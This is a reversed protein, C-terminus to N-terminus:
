DHVPDDSCWMADGVSSELEAGLYEGDQADDCGEQENPRTDGVPQFEVDGAYYCLEDAGNGHNNQDHGPERLHAAIVPACIPRERDNSGDEDQRDQQKPWRADTAEDVVM